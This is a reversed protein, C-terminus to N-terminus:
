LQFRACKLCKKLKFNSINIDGIGKVNVTEGNPVTVSTDNKGNTMANSWKKLHTIHDNVALDIIWSDLKEIKATMNTTSNTRQESPKTSKLLQLLRDYEEKTLNPTHQPVDGSVTAVCPNHQKSKNQQNKSTPTKCEVLRSLWYTSVGM